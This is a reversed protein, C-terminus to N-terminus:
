KVPEKDAFHAGIEQGYVRRGDVMIGILTSTPLLPDGEFFLLDADKGPELSGVRDSIGLIRAPALTLTSIARERPMGRHVAIRAHDLLTTGGSRGASGFGFEVGKNWLGTGGAIPDHEEKPLAVGTACCNHGYCTPDTEDHRHLPNDCIIHLHNETCGIPCPRQGPAHGHGEHGILELAAHEDHEDEHHEDLAGASGELEGAAGSGFVHDLAREARASLDISDDVGGRRRGTAVRYRPDSLVGVLAPINAAVLEKAALDAEQSEIVVSRKLGFEESLRVAAWVDKATSAKWFVPIENRLAALLVADDASPEQGGGASRALADQRVREFQYRLEFINSMRSQPRRNMLGRGGHGASPESGLTVRLGLADREVRATAEPGGLKVWCSLGGIVNAAGPHVVVSTVGERLRGAAEQSRPDVAYSARYSATSERGEENERSGRNLTLHTAGEIFGPTVVADGLDTVAVGPPLALSGGGVALIKGKGIVIFGPSHTVGNGVHVVAARIVLDAVDPHSCGLLAALFVSAVM